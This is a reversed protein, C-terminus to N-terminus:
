ARSDPKPNGVDMTLCIYMLAVHSVSMQFGGRHGPPWLLEVKLSQALVPVPSLFVHVRRSVTLKCGADTELSM